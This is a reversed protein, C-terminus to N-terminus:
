VNRKLNISVVHYDSVQDYVHRINEEKEVAVMGHWGNMVVVFLSPLLVYFPEICTVVTSLM